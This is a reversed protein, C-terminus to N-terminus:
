SEPQWLAAELVGGDFLQGFGAVVDRDAATGIDGIHIVLFEFDAQDAGLFDAAIHFVAIEVAADRTM